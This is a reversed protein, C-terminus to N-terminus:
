YVYVAVDSWLPSFRSTEKGFCRRRVEFELAEVRSRRNKAAVVLAGVDGACFRALMTKDVSGACVRASVPKDM